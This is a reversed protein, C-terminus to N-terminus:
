NALLVSLKVYGVGSRFGRREISRHCTEASTNRPRRLRTFRTSQLVYSSRALICTPRTTKHDKPRFYIYKHLSHQLTYVYKQVLTRARSNLYRLNCRLWEVWRFRFFICWIKKKVGVYKLSPSQKWLGVRDSGTVFRLFKKQMEPTWEFLVEWFDRQLFFILCAICSKEDAVYWM